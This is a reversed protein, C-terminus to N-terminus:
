KLVILLLFKFLGSISFVCERAWLIGIQTFYSFPLDLPDLERIWTSFRSFSQRPTRPVKDM